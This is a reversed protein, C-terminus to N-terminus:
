GWRGEGGGFFGDEGESEAFGDGVDHAVGVGGGAAKTEDRFVVLPADNHFVIPLVRRHAFAVTQAAHALADFGETAMEGQLAADGLIM